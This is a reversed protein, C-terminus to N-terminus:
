CIQVVVPSKILPSAFDDFHCPSLDAWYVTKWRRLWRQLCLQGNEPKTRFRWGMWAQEYAKDLPFPRRYPHGNGVDCLYSQNVRIVLHDNPANITAAVLHAHFGLGRLLSLFGVTQVHCPGGQNALISNLSDQANRRVM